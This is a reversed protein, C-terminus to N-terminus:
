EIAIGLDVPMGKRTVHIVFHDATRLRAYAELAKDPVTVDFGNVTEIRDGNELGLLALGENPRIGFIRVGAVHGDVQEPVLRAPRMRSADELIRELMSRPIVRENPVTVPTGFAIRCQGSGQSLLVYSASVAVITKGDFAGGRRRMVSEKGNTLVAVAWDPNTSPFIQIARVGECPPLDDAFSSRAVFLGAALVFLLLAHRM